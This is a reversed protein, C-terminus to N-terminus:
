QPRSREIGQQKEEQLSEMLDCVTRCSQTCVWLLTLKGFDGSDSGGSLEKGCKGKLRRREPKQSIM